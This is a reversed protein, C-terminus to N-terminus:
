LNTKYRLKKIRREDWRQPIKINGNWYGLFTKNELNVSIVTVPYVDKLRGEVSYLTDGAKIKEIKAM